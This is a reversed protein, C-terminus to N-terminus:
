QNSAGAHPFRIRSMLGLDTMARAMISAWALVNVSMVKQMAASILANKRSEILSCSMYSGLGAWREIWSITSGPNRFKGASNAPLGPRFPAGTTRSGDGITM